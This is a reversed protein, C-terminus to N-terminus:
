PILLVGGLGFAATIAYLILIARLEGVRFLSTVLYKMTLKNPPKITGDERLKAFKIHPHVKMNALWYGWMLFNIIHPTLLVIGFIEMDYLIILGGVAAGLMLTGSNGLFIRSPYKNYWMFALLAGLIPMLYYLQTTNGEFYVKLGIFFLLIWSLGGSLGNFGAHMNIMNSVVMVYIPAIIYPKLWGLHLRFDMPSFTVYEGVNLLAIPLALIYLLYIKKWRSKVRILDDILGFVGYIFVIFYFILLKEVFQHQDILLQAAILSMMVGGMIAVGGMTPVDPQKTKYMDKVVHGGAHFRLIFKRTLYFTVAFAVGFVVAAIYFVNM